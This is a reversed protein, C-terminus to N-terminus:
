TIFLGHTYELVMRKDEEHPRWPSTRFVLWHSISYSTHLKLATNSLLEISNIM